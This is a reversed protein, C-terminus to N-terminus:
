LAAMYPSPVRKSRSRQENIMRLADAESVGLSMAVYLTDHGSRFLNLAREAQLDRPRSPSRYLRESGAYPVVKM